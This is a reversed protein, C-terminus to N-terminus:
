SSHPVPETSVCSSAILRQLTTVAFPKALFGDFGSERVQRETDITADGSVAFVVPTPDISLERIRRLFEHGSIDPMRLDLIM